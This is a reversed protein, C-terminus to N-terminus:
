SSKVPFFNVLYSGKFSLLLPIEYLIPLCEVCCHVTYVKVQTFKDFCLTKIFQCICKIKSFDFELPNKGIFCIHAVIKYVYSLYIVLLGM